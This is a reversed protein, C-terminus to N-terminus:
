CPLERFARLREEDDAHTYISTTALNSHRAFVQALKADRTRRYVNTVASHRLTHFNRRRELGAREQWKAFMHRLTRTSVRQRERSVFLPAEPELSEGRRAKYAWFKELKYLLDDPIVVEQLPPRKKASRKYTHLVVHRRPRGGERFVDGVNLAAIEHCRLGTGLALSIVVHDRFGRAHEGSVRLVLKQEAETLTKPPRSTHTAYNSVVTAGEAPQVGLAVSGKPARELAFAAV